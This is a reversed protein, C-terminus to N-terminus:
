SHAPQMARLTVSCDPLQSYTKLKFPPVLSLDMSSLSKLSLTRQWQKMAACVFLMGLAQM